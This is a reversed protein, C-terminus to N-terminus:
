ALSGAAGFTSAVSARGVYLGIALKGIHFLVSTVFAGMWVDRWGIKVDPLFKFILAFMVGIVGIAVVDHLIYGVVVWGPMVDHMLKHFGELVASAVLSVILLFGFGLVVAVSLLRDRVLGELGRGPKA